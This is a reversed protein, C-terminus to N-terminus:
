FFKNKEIKKYIKAITFFNIRLNKVKAFKLINIYLLHRVQLGLPPKIVINEVGVGKFM